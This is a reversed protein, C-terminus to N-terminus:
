PPPVPPGAGPRHKGPRRARRPRDISSEAWVAIVILAAIGALGGGLILFVVDLDSTWSAAPHVSVM